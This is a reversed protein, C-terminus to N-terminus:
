DILKREFSAKLRMYQSMIKAYLFLSKENANTAYDVDCFSSNTTGKTTKYLYFKDYKKMM